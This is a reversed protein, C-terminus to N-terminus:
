LNWQTHLGALDVLHNWRERGIERKYSVRRAAVSRALQGIVLGARGSSRRLQRRDRQSVGACDRRSRNGSREAQIVRQEKDRGRAVVQHM